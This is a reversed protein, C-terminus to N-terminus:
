NKTRDGIQCFISHCFIFLLYSTDWVAAKRATWRAEAPVLGFRLAKHEAMQTAALRAEAPVLGVSLM